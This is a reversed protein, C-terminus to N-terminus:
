QEGYFMEDIEKAFRTKIDKPVKIKGKLVGLRTKSNDAAVDVRIVKVKPKGAKTIVFSEGNAAEDVLRSLHTKAEQINFTRM